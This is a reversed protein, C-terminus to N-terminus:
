GAKNVYASNKACYGRAPSEVQCHDGPPSTPVTANLVTKGPGKGIMCRFTTSYYSLSGAYTAEFTHWSWHVSKRMRSLCEYRSRPGNETKQESYALVRSLWDCALNSFYGARHNALWLRLKSQALSLFCARTLVLSNGRGMHCLSNGRGMHCVIHLLTLPPM